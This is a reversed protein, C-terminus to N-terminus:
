KSPENTDICERCFGFIELRHETARFGDEEPMDKIPCYDTCQIKGCGKCILHHHHKGDFILEYYSAEQGFTVRRIIGEQALIDLNRYVTSFNTGPNIKVVRKFIEQATMLSKDLEELVDLIAERQKTLKYGRKKLQKRLYGKEQM